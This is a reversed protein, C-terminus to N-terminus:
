TGYRGIRQDFCGTVPYILNLLLSLRQMNCRFICTCESNQVKDLYPRVYWNALHVLAGHDPAM